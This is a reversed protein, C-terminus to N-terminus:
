LFRQILKLIKDTTATYPPFLFKLTGYKRKIVGKPNSFERFGFFGNAKGTGSNGIGGFPIEAHQFQLLTENVLANGSSTRDLIYRTGASSRSHIYLALPKEMGNVIKVAQELSDIAIVPLLPGFIEEQMIQMSTDAGALVTPEIFLDDRDFRGGCVTKAGNGLADTYLSQLREFHQAHIIRAYDASQRIENEGPGYMERIADKMESLFRDHVSHHVLVYDPAICTQGNNLFKAWAILRATKPLDATEDIVSPSKGGLELSVSALHAAAARMVIKGVSPSGTFFIHDFPLELLDAAVAKDGEIVTVEEPTFLNRAFNRIFAAAAPTFESPKIIATCGASVASILPKLALSVPYNWPSIILSTGKPEFQIYSQTGAALLPTPVPHPKMWRDLHRIHYRLESTLTIVESLRAEASPKRMDEHTAKGIEDAYRTLYELMRRLKDRRERYTSAAAKPAFDKQRRFLAAIDAKSLREASPQDSM